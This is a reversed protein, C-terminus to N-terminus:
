DISGVRQVTFSWSTVSVSGSAGGEFSQKTYVRLDHKGAPLDALVGSLTIERTTSGPSFASVGWGSGRLPTGDIALAWETSCKFTPSNAGDCEISITVSSSALVAGADPTTFGQPFGAVSYGTLDPTNQTSTSGATGAAAWSPGSPGQEGKPGQAGKPGQPGPAGQPGPSNLKARVPKALDREAISGNKIDKGTILRAATATGATALMLGLIFAILVGRRRALFTAM